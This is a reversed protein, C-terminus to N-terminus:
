RRAAYSLSLARSYGNGRGTPMGGSRAAMGLWIMTAAVLLVYIMAKM